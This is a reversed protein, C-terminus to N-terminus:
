KELFLVTDFLNFRIPPASVARNYRQDVRGDEPTLLRVAWSVPLSSPLSIVGKSVEAYNGTKTYSSLRFPTLSSHNTLSPT